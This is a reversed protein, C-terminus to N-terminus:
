SHFKPIVRPLVLAISDPLFNKASLWTNLEEVSVWHAETIEGDAFRFPGESECLYVAAVLSVTDDVYVGTGLSVLHAGDLGLEEAVEREAATDWAEGPACVGGVAVDWWGPWVDKTDARRHVLLQGSQSVVAVFVSRHCLSKERMERRTVLGSVTGALDVVEVMEDPSNAPQSVSQKATPDAM